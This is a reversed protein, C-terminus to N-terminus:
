RAAQRCPASTASGEGSAPKTGAGEQMAAFQRFLAQKREASLEAATKCAMETRRPRAARPSLRIPKDTKASVVAPATEPGPAGTGCGGLLMSLGMVYGFRVGFRM